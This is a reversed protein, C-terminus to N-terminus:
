GRRVESCAPLYRVRMVYSLVSLVEAAACWANLWAVLNRRPVGALENDPAAGVRSERWAVDGPRCSRAGRRKGAHIASLPLM